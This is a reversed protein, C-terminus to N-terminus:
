FPCQWHRDRSRRSHVSRRRALRIRRSRHSALCPLCWPDMCFWRGRFGGKSGAEGGAQAGPAPWSSGTNALDAPAGAGGHPGAPGPVVLAVGAVAGGGARAAPARPGGRGSRRGPTGPTTDIDTGRGRVTHTTGRSRDPTGPPTERSRVLGLLSRNDCTLRHFPSTRCSYAHIRSIWVM